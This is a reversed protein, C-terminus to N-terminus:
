IGPLYVELESDREHVQSQASEAHGDRLRKFHLDCRRGFSGACLM